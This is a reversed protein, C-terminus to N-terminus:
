IRQVIEGYDDIKQRLLSYLVRVAFEEGKLPLPERSIKDFLNSGLRNLTVIMHDECVVLMDNITINLKESTPNTSEVQSDWLFITPIGKVNDIRPFSEKVLKSELVNRSITTEKEIRDLDIEAIHQYDIWVPEGGDKAITCSSEKM